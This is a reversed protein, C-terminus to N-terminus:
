SSDRQLVLTDDGPLDRYRGAHEGRTMQTLQGLDHRKLHDILRQRSGARGLGTETHQRRPHHDVQQQGPAQEGLQAVPLHPVLQGGAQARQRHGMRAVVRQPLGARAQAGRRQPPQEVQQAARGRRDGGPRHAPAPQQHAGDVPGGHADGIAGPVQGGVALLGAVVAPRPIRQQPQHGQHGAAGPGDDVRHEAGGAAALQVVGAPQPAAQVGAHDHQQVTVEVSGRQDALEGGGLRVQQDAELAVALQRHQAAVM